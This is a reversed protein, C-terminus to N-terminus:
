YTNFDEITNKLFENREEITLLGLFINIQSMVEKRGLYIIYQDVQLINELCIHRLFINYFKDVYGYMTANYNNAYSIIDNILWDNYEYDWYNRYMITLDQKVMNIHKIDEILCQPQCSHTYFIIKDIIERPMRALSNELKTLENM